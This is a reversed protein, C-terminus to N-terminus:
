HCESKLYIGYYLKQEIIANLNQVCLIGCILKKEIIANENKLMDYQWLAKAIWIEIIWTQKDSKM